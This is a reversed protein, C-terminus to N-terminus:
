YFSYLSFSYISKKRICCCWYFLAVSFFSSPFSIKLFFVSSEVHVHFIELSLSWYLFYFFPPYIYLYYTSIICCFFLIRYFFIIKKSISACSFFIIM